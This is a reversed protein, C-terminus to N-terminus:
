LFLQVSRNLCGYLARIRVVDEDSLGAISGNDDVQSFVAPGVIEHEGFQRNPPLGKLAGEEDVYVHVDADEDFLVQFYGGLAKQIGKASAPIEEVRGPQGPDYALVRVLIEM